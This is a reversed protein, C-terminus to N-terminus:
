KDELGDLYGELKGSLKEFDEDSLANIRDIVASRDNSIPASKTTHMDNDWGMLYAPTTNLAEALQVVMTRPIDRGNEIHAVSSKSKYGLKHALEEQTMDKEKRLEKIRDGIDM